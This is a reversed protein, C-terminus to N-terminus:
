KVVGDRSRWRCVSSHSHCSIGDIFYRIGAISIWYVKIGGPDWYRNAKGVWVILKKSKSSLLLIRELEPSHNPRLCSTAWLLSSILHCHIQEWSGCKGFGKFKRRLLLKPEEKQRRVWEMKAGKLLKDLWYLLEQNGNCRCFSLPFDESIKRRSIKILIDNKELNAEQFRQSPFILKTDKLSGQNCFFPPLRWNCCFDVGM